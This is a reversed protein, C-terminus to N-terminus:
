SPSSRRPPTRKAIGWYEHIIRVMREFMEPSSPKELFSSAGLRYAEDIIKPQDSSSLVLTPTVQFKPNDKLWELVELGTRNPMKLDLILFGPRPYKDRNAYEGSGELYAIAEEGDKVIHIPTKIRNAQFARVLFTADDPNDEAVLIIFPSGGM